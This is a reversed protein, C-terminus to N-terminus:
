FFVDANRKLNQSSQQAVRKMLEVIVARNFNFDARNFNEGFDSVKVAFPKLNVSNLYKNTKENRDVTAPLYFFVNSYEETDFAGGEYQMRHQGFITSKCSNPIKLKQTSFLVKDNEKNYGYDFFQEQPDNWVTMLSICYEIGLFEGSIPNYRARLIKVEDEEYSEIENPQHAFPM